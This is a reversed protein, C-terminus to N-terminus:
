PQKEEQRALRHILQELEALRKELAANRTKEDQLEQYLGQIAALSIGTLDASNLTTESDNLPFLAHWDQAMPGIHRQPYGIYNWETIPLRGLKELLTRTNVPAFGEKVNRDSTFIWSGGGPSWAVTQNGGSTGSTFIVGGACRATFQNDATSYTYSLANADGWVFAGINTAAAQSGAAFSYPASALNASGGSVTAYNGSATNYTGGGVTSFFGSATNYGGGGVVSSSGGATNYSGGGITAALNSATNFNGGGIVAGAGSAVNSGYMIGDYGGGGIFAGTGSAINATGGAVTAGYSSAINATGGAVTAVYGSAINVSGGGVTAYDNSAINGQGGAVTGYQNSATNGNGGGVTTYYGSATNHFGGGVTAFSASATNGNGGGVTTFPGSATNLEGGGIAPALGATVSNQYGGAIVAYYCNAASNSFGGGIFSYDVAINEVGGGITAFQYAANNLGGGIMAYTNLASNSVGGGIFSFDGSTANYQGGAISSLTSNLINGSGVNLQAAQVNGTAQLNGNITQSAGWSNAHAFNLGLTATGGNGTLSADHNLNVSVTTAAGLAVVGGGALGSGATVTISSNALKPNSVTGDALKATTVAGAGLKNVTVTGDALASATVAGAAFKSSTIAGDVVNQALVAYGVAALRQDPTLQQKGAIGDDFWIRLRVDANNFVSVPLTAMSTVNTDGLLVAYLGQSVPVSVVGVGNSWYTIAGTQDVLAFQFQGTGTFNTGGASVLGQHSLIAPVQGFGLQSLMLGTALLCRYLMKM